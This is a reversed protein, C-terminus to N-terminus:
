LPAGVGALHTAIRAGWAARLRPPGDHGMTEDIEIIAAPIAEATEVARPLPIVKDHRGHLILTPVDLAALAPRLDPVALSAAFHRATGGRHIGHRWAIRAEDAIREADFDQAMGNAQAVGLQRTVYADEDAIHEAMLRELAADPVVDAMSRSMAMVLSLSLVRDPYSVALQQAVLGGISRGVFHARDIAEADMVALVDRAMDAIGYPPRVDGGGLVAAKMAPLDPAVDILATSRGTDRSDIRIPVFGAAFLPACFHYDFDTSPRGAGALLIVAPGDGATMREYSTRVTGNTAFAM